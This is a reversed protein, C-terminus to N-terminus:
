DTFIEVFRLEYINVPSKFLITQFPDAAKVKIKEVVGVIQTNIAPFSIVDGERIDVGRPLKVEFNGGGLVELV